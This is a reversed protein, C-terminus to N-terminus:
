IYVAKLKQAVQVQPYKKMRLRTKTRLNNKNNKYNERRRENIREKNKEHYKKHFYYSPPRLNLRKQSSSLKSYWKRDLKKEIYNYVHFRCVKYFSNKAHKLDKILKKGSFFKEEFIEFAEDFIENAEMFADKFGCKSYSRSIGKLFYKRNNQIWTLAEQKLPNFKERSLTAEVCAPHRLFSKGDHDFFEGQQPLVWEKCIFCREQYKNAVM